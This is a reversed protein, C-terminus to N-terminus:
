FLIRGGLQFQRGGVGNFTRIARGFAPNGVRTIPNAYNTSNTVNYAEARLELKFNEGVPFSRFVSADYSFLDPGRFSNRGLTGFTGSAPSQFLNPDFNAQGNIETSASGSLSAFQTSLGPCACALADATV